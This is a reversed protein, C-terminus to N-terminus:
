STLIWNVVVLTNRHTQQRRKEKINNGLSAVFFVITCLTVIEKLVNNSSSFFFCFSSSSFCCFCCCCCFVVSKLCINYNHLSAVFFVTTFLTIKKNLVNNPLFASRKFSIGASSSRISGSEFNFRRYFLQKRFSTQTAAIASNILM